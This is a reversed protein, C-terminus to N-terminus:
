RSENGDQFSWEALLQQYNEPSDVDFFEKGSAFSVYCVREPQKIILQRGGSDGHLEAFEGRCRAPFIVPNASKGAVEPVVIKKSKNECFVELLTKITSSTLRPQDAVAFMVGGKATSVALGQQISYSKGAEPNQNQCLVVPYKRAISAVQPDRYVLIVKQFLAFPFRKLFQGVVTSNGLPLLLKNCGMRKSFGAALIVADVKAM